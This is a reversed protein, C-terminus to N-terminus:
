LARRLAARGTGRPNYDYGDPNVPTGESTVRGYSPCTLTVFLSIRCLKVRHM